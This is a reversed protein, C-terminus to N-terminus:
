HRSSMIADKGKRFYFESWLRFFTKRVKIGEKNIHLPLRATFELSSFSAIRRAKNVDHYLMERPQLNSRSVHLAGVPCCFNWESDIAHSRNLCRSWISPWVHWRAVESRRAAEIAQPMFLKWSFTKHSYIPTNSHLKDIKRCGCCHSPAHAYFKSSVSDWNRRGFAWEGGGQGVRTECTFIM